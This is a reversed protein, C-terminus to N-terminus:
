FTKSRGRFENYNEEYASSLQDAVMAAGKPTLIICTTLLSVVESKPVIVQVFVEYANYSLGYPKYQIRDSAITEFQLNIAVCNEHVEYTKPYVVDAVALEKDDEM